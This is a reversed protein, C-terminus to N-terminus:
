LLHFYVQIIQHYIRFSYSEDVILTFNNFYKNYIKIDKDVPNKLYIKKDEIRYIGENTYLKIYTESNIFYEKFIDSIDKLLDLNFNNIYIKM